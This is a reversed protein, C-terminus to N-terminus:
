KPFAKKQVSTAVRVKRMRKVPMPKPKTPAKMHLGEQPTSAFDTASQKSMGQAAQAVEPSPASMDGMQTAHVMGMFRQQKKSVAPSM